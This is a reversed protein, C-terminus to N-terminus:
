STIILGPEHVQLSIRFNFGKPIIVFPVQLFTLFPSLLSVYLSNVLFLQLLKHFRVSFMVHLETTNYEVLKVVFVIIKKFNEVEVVLALFAVM